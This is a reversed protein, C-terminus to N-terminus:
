DISQDRSSQWASIRAAAAELSERDRAAADSARAALEALAAGLVERHGETLYLVRVDGPLAYAQPVTHPIPQLHRLRDIVPRVDMAPVTLTLGSLEVTVEEAALLAWSRPLSFVADQTEIATARPDRMHEVHPPLTELLEEPVIHFVGVRFWRDTTM